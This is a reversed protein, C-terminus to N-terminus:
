LGSKRLTKEMKKFYAMDWQISKLSNNYFAKGIPTTELISFDIKDTYQYLDMEINIQFGIQPGTSSFKLTSTNLEIFESIYGEKSYRITYIADAEIRVRSSYKGSTSTTKTDILEDNRYVEIKAGPLIEGTNPCKHNSPCDIRVKGHFKIIPVDPQAQGRVVFALLIIIFNLRLM